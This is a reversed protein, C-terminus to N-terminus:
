RSSSAVNRLDYAAPSISDHRRIRTVLLSGTKVLM